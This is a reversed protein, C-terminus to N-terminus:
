FSTTQREQLAQMCIVAKTRGEHRTCTSGPSLECSGEEMRDSELLAAARESDAEVM